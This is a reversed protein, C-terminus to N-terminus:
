EMLAKIDEDQKLDESIFHYAQKNQKVAITALEKDNRLEKSAYKIIIGKNEVASKVVERDARLDQSAYYLGQGYNKCSELIFPDKDLIAINNVKNEIKEILEKNM